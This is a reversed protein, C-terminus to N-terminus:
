LAVGVEGEVPLASPEEQLYSQESVVPAPRSPCRAPAAPLSVQCRLHTAELGAGRPTLLDPRGAVSGCVIGMRPALLDSERRSGLPEDVM